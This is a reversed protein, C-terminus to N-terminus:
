TRGAETATRPGSTTRETTPPPETFSDVSTSSIRCDSSTVRATTANSRRSSPTRYLPTVTCREAASGIRDLLANVAQRASTNAGEMTALDMPVAVYDGSLFLNPIKTASRPRHHLTGVPHILLQEENVPNPTGLGDVAPDLFWSHLVSDKLVMRGSDNLAAKLQAWM